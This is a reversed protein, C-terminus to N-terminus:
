LKASREILMRVDEEDFNPCHQTDMKFFSLIVASLTKM